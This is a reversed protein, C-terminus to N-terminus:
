QRDQTSWDTDETIAQYYAKAQVTQWAQGAGPVSSVAMEMCKMRLFQDQSMTATIMQQWRHAEDEHGQDSTNM